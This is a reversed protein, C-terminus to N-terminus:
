LRDWVKPCDHAAVVERGDVGFVCWLWGDCRDVFEDLALFERFVDSRGDVENGFVDVGINKRGGVM